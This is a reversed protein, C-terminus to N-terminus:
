TFPIFPLIVVKILMVIWVLQIITLISAVYWPLWVFGLFPAFMSIMGWLASLSGPTPTDTTDIGSRLFENAFAGFVLGAIALSITLVIFIRIETDNPGQGM